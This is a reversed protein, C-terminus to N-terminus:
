IKTEKTCNISKSKFLTKSYIFLLQQNGELIRLRQEDTTRDEKLTVEEINCLISMQM